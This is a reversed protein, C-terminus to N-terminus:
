RPGSCISLLQFANPEAQDHFQPLEPWCLLGFSALLVASAPPFQPLHECSEAFSLARFLLLLGAPVCDALLMQPLDLQKGRGVTSASRHFFRDLSSQHM